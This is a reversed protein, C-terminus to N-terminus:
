RKATMKERTIEELYLICGCSVCRTLGGHSLLASMTEVPLGMMCSGCHFEHRKRDTVEIPAMAEEERAEVLEHYIALVDAPVDKVLETRRGKLEDLKDKIEAERENRETAAVGRVKERESKATDLEALQAKLRDITEIQGIAGDEVAAKQEKFTNVETLLAKYEKNTKANNMRERLEAIHAELRGAEGESNSSTATLQRLQSSIAARSKEIEGLHREQESLFREAARLRSQLGRIQQDVLFVRHLKDTVNM